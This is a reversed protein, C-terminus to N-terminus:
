SRYPFGTGNTSIVHCADEPGPVNVSLPVPFVDEALSTLPCDIIYILDEEIPIEWIVAVLPIAESVAVTIQIFIVEGVVSVVVVPVKVDEVVLVIIVVITDVVVPVEVIIVVVEFVFVDVEFTMVKVILEGVVDEISEVNVKVVVDVEVSVEAVVMM